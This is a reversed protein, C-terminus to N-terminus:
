ARAARHIESVGFAACDAESLCCFEPNPSTRCGFGFLVLLGFLVTKMLLRRALM